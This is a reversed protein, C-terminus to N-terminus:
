DQGRKEKSFDGFGGLLSQTRQQIILSFSLQMNVFERLCNTAM